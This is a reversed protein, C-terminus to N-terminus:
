PKFEVLVGRRVRLQDPLVVGGKLQLHLSDRIGVGLPEDVGEYVEEGPVKLMILTIIIIEIMIVITIMMIKILIRMIIIILIIIIIIIIIKMIILIMKIKIIMISNRNNWYHIVSRDKM